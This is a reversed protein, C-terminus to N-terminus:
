GPQVSFSMTPNRRLGASRFFVNDTKKGPGAGDGSMIQIADTSRYKKQLNSRLFMDKGSIYDFSSM